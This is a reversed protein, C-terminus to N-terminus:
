HELEEGRAKSFLSQQKEPGVQTNEGELRPPRISSLHITKYDGSNLKVVIADANLVQM